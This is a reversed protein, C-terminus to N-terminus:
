SRNVEVLVVGVKLVCQTSHSLDIFFQALEVNIHVSICFAAPKRTPAKQIQGKAVFLDTLTSKVASEQLLCTCGPSTDGSHNIGHRHALARACLCVCMCACPCPPLWRPLWAPLWPPLWHPLWPPLWPPYPCIWALLWYILVM